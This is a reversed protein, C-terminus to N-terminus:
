EEGASDIDDHGSFLKSIQEPLKRKVKVVKRILEQYADIDINLEFLSDSLRYGYSAELAYNCMCEHLRGQEVAMEWRDLLLNPDKAIGLPSVRWGCFLPENSYNVKAKLTLKDIIDNHACTQILRGPAVMDDGAFAIPHDKRIDYRMYTYAMNCVTNFFFTGFEGSFRMVSLEGLTCGMMLKLETYESILEQEWGFYKLMEVEMGLITADQSRDFAEYDSDTGSLDNFYTKCWEDLDDYNKQSFILTSEPLLARFQAETRRLAPGFKCLVAHSFCAITQGAKADCGRKEMKTCTQNKIFVRLINSPWDPDSRYGHAELLAKSKQVRKETFELEKDTLEMAPAVEPFELKRCLNWVHVKWHPLGQLLKEQEERLRLIQTEKVNKSDTHKMYISSRSKEPGAYREGSIDDRIQNSYGLQYHYQEREEKAKLESAFQENTFESLPLHTRSGEPCFEEEMEEEDMEEHELMLLMAKLYPDADLKDEVEDMTLGIYLEEELYEVDFSCSDKILNMLEQKGIMRKEAVARVFPDRANKATYDRGLPFVMNIGERARTLATIMTQGSTKLAGADFVIQVVDLSLGQSQGVTMIKNEDVHERRKFTLTKDGGREQPLEALKLEGPGACRLGEFLKQKEPLRHSFLLYPVRDKKPTITIPETSRFTWSMRPGRAGVCHKHTKQFDNPMLFSASSSDFEISGQKCSFGHTSKGSSITLIPNGRLTLVPEDDAHYPIRAGAEFMQFLCHNFMKPDYGHSVLIDDLEEPWGKSAHEAGTYKYGEGNRSYFWIQRGKISDPEGVATPENAKAASVLIKTGCQCQISAGGLRKFISPEIPSLKLRDKESHYSCQLPDGLIVVDTPRKMMIALDIYGPPFLPAEDFVLLRPGTAGVKLYTEFTHVQHSTGKLWKKWEAALNTRPSVVACHERSLHLVQTLYSSKGSGAFGLTTIVRIVESYNQDFTPLGNKLDCLVIGTYNKQFSDRILNASKGTILMSCIGVNPGMLLLDTTRDGFDVFDCKEAHDKNVTIGFPARLGKRSYRYPGKKISITLDLMRIMMVFGNMSLGSNSIFRAFNPDMSNCASLLTAVDMKMAESIPGLLCVNKVLGKIKTVNELWDNDEEGCSVTSESEIDSEPAEVRETPTQMRREYEEENILGEKLLEIPRKTGICPVEMYINTRVKQLNKKFIPTPCQECYYRQNLNKVVVPNAGIVRKLEETRKLAHHLVDDREKKGLASYPRPERDPLVVWENSNILRRKGDLFGNLANHLDELPLEHDPATYARFHREITIKPKCLLKLTSELNWVDFENKDLLYTFKAGMVHELTLLMEKGFRFLGDEGFCKTNSIQRALRGVFMIEEATEDGRTLQRIKSIASPADPQGFEGEVKTKHQTPGSHKGPPHPHIRMIYSEETVLSGPTALFVHHAGITELKTLTWSNGNPDELKMTTLLRPNIPQTYAGNYSGDPAWTFSDSKNVKFEYLMPNLSYDIGASLEPPYIISYLVPKNSLGLFKQFDVLAWYHVEDHIVVLDAQNMKEKLNKNLSLDLDRVPDKYRLSDKAHILRNYVSSNSVADVKNRNRAVSIVGVMKDEKISIFLNRPRLYNPLVNFLIHNEIMKSIPHPHPRYCHASLPVGKSSLYDYAEDSIFYDFKGSVSEEHENVRTAKIVKSQEIKDGLNSYLNAYAVRQSSAGLSM